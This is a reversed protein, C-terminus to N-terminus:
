KQREGYEEKKKHDRNRIIKGKKVNDEEGLWWANLSIKEKNTRYRAV